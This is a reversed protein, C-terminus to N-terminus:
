QTTASRPLTIGASAILAADFRMACFSHPNRLTSAISPLSADNM